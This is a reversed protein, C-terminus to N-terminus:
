TARALRLRALIALWLGCKTPYTTVGAFSNPLEDGCVGFFLGITVRIREFSGPVAKARRDGVAGRLYESAFVASEETAPHASTAPLPLLFDFFYTKPRRLSFARAAPKVGYVIIPATPRPGSTIAPIFSRTM